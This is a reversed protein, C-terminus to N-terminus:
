CAKPTRTVSKATTALCGRFCPVRRIMEKRLAEPAEASISLDAVARRDLMSPLVKAFNM